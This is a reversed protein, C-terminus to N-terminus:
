KISGTADFVKWDGNNYIIREGTALTAKFIIYSTTGVKKSITITNSTAGHVNSVVLTNLYGTPTLVVTTIAAIKGNLTSGYNYCLTYDIDATATTTVTLRETTLFYM